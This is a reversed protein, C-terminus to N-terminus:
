PWGQMWLPHLPEPEPEPLWQPFQVQGTHEPDAPNFMRVPVGDPRPIRVNSHTAGEPPFRVVFPAYHAIEDHEIHAGHEAARELLLELRRPFWGRAPTEGRRRWPGGIRPSPKLAALFAAELPSIEWPEADFYWRAAERIGFIDPGFEICNLYLELVRNREVREEVVWVLVAEELKRSLTKERTLFLNKVLQQTVTSGGYVYYGRELNMRLARNLLPISIWRNRFFAMEESLYMLAPVFSPLDTLPVFSATGPGVRLDPLETGEVVHHVFDPDNLRDPDLAPTIWETTCTAPENGARLRLSSVTGLTYTLTATPQLHGAFRVGRRGITPALGEPLSRWAEMCPTRERFGASARLPDGPSLGDLRLEAELPLAGLDVEIRGEIADDHEIRGEIRMTATVPGVIGPALARVDLELDRVAVRASVRLTGHDEDPEGADREAPRMHLSLDITGAALHDTRGAVPWNELSALWGGDPTPELAVEAIGVSAIIEPREGAEMRLRRLEVPVDLENLSADEVILTFPLALEDLRRALEEGHRLWEVTRVVRALLGQRASRAREALAALREARTPEDTQPDEPAAADPDADPAPDADAAPADVTDARPTIEVGRVRLRPREGRLEAEVTTVRAAGRHDLVTGDVFVDRLLVTDGLVGLEAVQLEAQLPGAGISLTGDLEATLGRDDHTIRLTLVRDVVRLAFALDAGSDRAMLHLDEVVVPGAPRLLAHLLEAPLADALADPLAAPGPTGAPASADASALLRLSDVELRDTVDLPRLLASRLRQELTRPPPTPEATHDPEPTDPHPTDPAVTCDELSLSRARREGRLVAPRDLLATASTCSLTLPPASVRLDHIRWTDSALREVHRFAFRDPDLQSLLREAVAREITPLLAAGAGVVLAIALLAALLARRRPRRREPPPPEPRALPIARPLPTRTTPPENPVTM